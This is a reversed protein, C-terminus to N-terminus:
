PRQRTHHRIFTVPPVLIHPVVVAVIGGIGRKESLDTALIEDAVIRFCQATICRLYLRELLFPQNFGDDRM